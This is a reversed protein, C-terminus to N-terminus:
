RSRDGGQAQGRLRGPPPLPRHRCSDVDVAAMTEYAGPLSRIETAQVKTLEDGSAPRAGVYERIERDIEKLADATKDIQVPAFALWPRQGLADPVFSFAGYAWHKEERLNMNLRSTFQGGLISNAIDLRLAADDLSSPVLLGALVTAQVAGPQDIVYLRSAKPRPVSAIQPAAGTAVSGKWGNFHKELLPVIEALTTDGAVILTAGAPNLWLRQYGLLDERTLGAISQENGAGSFPLAYPHGDGYLLPPLVRLALGFPEAKEQKIRAIWTARVRELELADFRPRRLM